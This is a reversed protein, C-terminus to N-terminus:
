NYTLNKLEDTKRFHIISENQKIIKMPTLNDTRCNTFRILFGTFCVEGHTKLLYDKANVCTLSMVYRIEDASLDEFKKIM